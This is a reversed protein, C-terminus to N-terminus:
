RPKSVWKSSADYFRLPAQAWDGAYDVGIRPTSIIDSPPDGETLHLDPELVSLTNHARTIGLARAFRGPGDTRGEINETPEGARILVAQADGEDGTVINFLDYMGYILYVYAHAAAGFMVETRKTRGKAAHCALDHTGVYAETETIRSRKIGDASGVVLHKGLLERAVTEADREFFAKELM